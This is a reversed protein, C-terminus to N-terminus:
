AVLSSRRQQQRVRHISSGLSTKQPHPTRGGQPGSGPGCPVGTAAQSALRELLEYAYSATERDQEQDNTVRAQVEVQVAAKGDTQVSRRIRFILPAVEASSIGNAKVAGNGNAPSSVGVQPALATIAAAAIHKCIRGEQAIRVQFDPCTCSGTGHLDLRVKYAVGSKNTVIFEPFDGSVHLRNTKMEEVARAWRNGAKSQLLTLALSASQPDVIQTAVSM